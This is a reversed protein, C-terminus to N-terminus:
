GLWNKNVQGYRTCQGTVILYRSRGSRISNNGVKTKEQERRILDITEEEDVIVVNACFEKEGHDCTSAVSVRHWRRMYSEECRRPRAVGGQKLTPPAQPSVTDVLFHYVWQVSRPATQHTCSCSGGRLWIPLLLVCPPVVLRRAVLFATERLFGATFRM